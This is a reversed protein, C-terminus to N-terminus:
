VEVKRGWGPHESSCCERGCTKCVWWVAGRRKLAISCVDCSMPQQVLRRYVQRDREARIETVQEVPKRECERCVPVRKFLSNWDRDQTEVPNRGDQTCTCKRDWRYQPVKALACPSCRARCLQMHYTVTTPRHCQFSKCDNCVQMGCGWCQLKENGSCTLVRLYRPEQEPNIHGKKDTETKSKVQNSTPYLAKYVARSALSLNVLDLHHLQEAIIPIVAGTELVDVLLTKGDKKGLTVAKTKVRRPISKLQTNVKESIKAASKQQGNTWKSLWRRAFYVRTQMPQPLLRVIYTGLCKLIATIVVIPITLPLTLFVVFKDWNFCSQRNRSDTTQARYRPRSSYHYWAALGFGLNALTAISYLIISAVGAYYKLLFHKCRSEPYGTDDPDIDQLMQLFALGRNTVITGPAPLLRECQGNTKGYYGGQIASAGIISATIGADVIGVFFLLEGPCMVTPIWMVFNWAFAFVGVGGGMKEAILAVDGIPPQLLIGAHKQFFKLDQIGNIGYIFLPIHALFRVVGSVIGGPSSGMLDVIRLGIHSYCSAPIPWGQQKERLKFEQKLTDQELIAAHEGSGQAEYMSRVLNVLCEKYPGDARSVMDFENIINLCLYINDIPPGITVVPPAGFTVCSLRTPQIISNMSCVYRLFLLSAVAGGASHGTLLIHSKGGNEDVYKNIERSVIPDLAEAGKLFGAHAELPIEARYHPPDLRALNIFHDANAPRYNANVVHDVISASGRIAIVFVSGHESTVRTFTSAKVTGGISPVTCTQATSASDNTSVGTAPPDYVSQSGQFATSILQAEADSCDWESYLRHNLQSNEYKSAEEDLRDLFLSIQARPEGDLEIQDLAPGLAESLEAVAQSAGQSNDIPTSIAPFTSSARLASAAPKPHDKSFSLIRNLLPM